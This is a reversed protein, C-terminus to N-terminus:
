NTNHSKFLLGDVCSIEDRFTWYPTVSKVLESKDLPWGEIVTKTLEKLEIDEATSKQFRDYMQQSIPLYLLLSLENVTLDPVLDEKTEKRGFIYQHFKECGYVIALTEKEIQAYRQQNITMARSAYAIPKGVQLIVAGLGKQSADIAFEYGYTEAKPLKNTAARELAM